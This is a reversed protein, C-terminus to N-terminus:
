AGRRLEKNIDDTIQEAIGATESTPNQNSYLAREAMATLETLQKAIGPLLKAVKALFERLTADPTMHVGAIREIIALGARYASIVRGKIGTMKIIPARPTIFAPLGAAEKQPIVRAKMTRRRRLILFALSLLSIFTLTSFVPNIIIAQRKETLYSVWPELPKVNISFERQGMFSFDLPIDLTTTFSGDSATTLTTSIDSFVINVSADAIPGRESQVRGSLQISRPLVIIGPTELDIELPILAVTITHQRSTGAFREQPVVELILNRRGTPIEDPPTIELSFQGPPTTEIIQMNDISVNITRVADDAEQIIEGNITFPIGPYIIDPTSLELQTSYFRIQLIVEPSQCALYTDADSGQPEYVAVAKMTEVYEYPLTINGNYSGNEQSVVTVTTGVDLRITVSKGSLPKDGSKLIGRANVSDGVYASTPSIQLTLSTPTLSKIENYSENLSKRLNNLMDLLQQLQQMSDKLREDAELLEKSASTAMVGFHKRLSETTLNLDYLIVTADEIYIEAEDLKSKAENIDSSEILHLAEDLTIDLTNLTIFLQQCLDNYRNIINRYEDPIDIKRLEELAELATAYERNSATLIIKGYSILLSIKDLVGAAKDPDEHPTRTPQALATVSPFVIIVVIFILLVTALRKKM